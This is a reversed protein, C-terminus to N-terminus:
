FIICHFVCMHIHLAQFHNECVNYQQVKFKGSGVIRVTIRPTLVIVNEVAAVNLFFEETLEDIGDDTIELEFSIETDRRSGGRYRFTENTHVYDPPNTTGVNLLSTTTLTYVNLYFNYDTCMLVTSGRYLPCAPVM